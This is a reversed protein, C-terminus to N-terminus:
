KERIRTVSFNFLDCRLYDESFMVPNGRSDFHLQRLALIPINSEGCMESVIPDDKPPIEIGTASRTIFIGKKFEFYQFISPPIRLPDIEDALHMPIYNLSSSIVGQTSSFRTRKIVCVKGSDPPLDLKSAVTDSPAEYFISVDSAGERIGTQRIMESLSRLRSLDNEIKRASDLLYTGAGHRSYIIGERRLLELSNRWTERSINLRRAMETESPIKEGPIFIGEKCMRVFEEKARLSSSVKKM